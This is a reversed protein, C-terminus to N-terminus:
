NCCVTQIYKYRLNLLDFCLVGHCLQLKGLLQSFKWIFSPCNHLQKPQFLWEAGLRSSQLPKNHGLPLLQRKLKNSFQGPNMSGPQASGEAPSDQGGSTPVSGDACQSPAAAQPFFSTLFPSFFIVVWISHSNIYILRSCVM